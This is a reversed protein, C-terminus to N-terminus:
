AEVAETADLDKVIVQGTGSHVLRRKNDANKEVRMADDKNVEIVTWGSEVKCGVAKEIAKATKATKTKGGEVVTLTPKAAPLESEDTEPLQEEDDPDAKEGKRKAPVNAEEAARRSKLFEFPSDKETGINAGIYVYEGMAAFAARLLGFVAMLVYLIAVLVRSVIWLTAKAMGKALKNVQAGLLQRHLSV